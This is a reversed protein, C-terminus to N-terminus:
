NFHASFLIDLYPPELLKQDIGMRIKYASILKKSCLRLGPLVLVSYQIIQFEYICANRKIQVWYQFMLLIFWHWNWVYNVVFLDNERIRRRTGCYLINQSYYQIRPEFMTRQVRITSFNISAVVAKSANIDYNILM